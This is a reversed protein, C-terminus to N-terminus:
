EDRLKKQWEVPNEIDKFMNANKMKELVAFMEEKKSEDSNKPEEDLITVRVKRGIFNNAHRTVEEWTGELIQTAM